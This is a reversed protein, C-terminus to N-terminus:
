AHHKRFFAEPDSLDAEVIEPAKAAAVHRTGAAKELELPEFRARVSGEPGVEAAAVVKGEHNRFIEIKM